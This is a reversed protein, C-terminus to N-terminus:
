RQGDGEASLKQMQWGVILMRHAHTSNHPSRKDIEQKHRDGINERFEDVLRIM